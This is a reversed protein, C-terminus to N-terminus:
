QQVSEKVLGLDKLITKKNVKGLANKPLADVVVLDRPVKYQALRTAVAEQLEPLTLGESEDGLRIIAVIEEGWKPHPRGVVVAEAVRPLAEHIAGEIDLASIKYGGSKIIDASMRGLIRHARAEPDYVAWDGTRYWGQADFAERTAEPRGHYREFLQPGRARVEGEVGPGVAQETAPDVLRAEVGPLVQGVYGPLRPGHLPNSFTFGAETSGYRELLRHGTLAEWKRFLTQPLAASGSVMLRLQQFHQIAAAKTAPDLAGDGTSELEQIFTNPISTPTYIRLARLALHVFM